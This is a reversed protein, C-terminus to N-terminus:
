RQAGHLIRVVHVVDDRVAYVVIWPLSMTPKV